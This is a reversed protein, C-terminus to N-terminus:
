FRYDVELAFNRARRPNGFFARSYDTELWRTALIPEDADGL